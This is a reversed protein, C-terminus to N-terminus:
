KNSGEKAAKEAAKRETVRAGRLATALDYDGESCAYEYMQSDSRTVTMEGSYPRVWMGPDELTFEYIMTDKDVLRFREILHVNQAGPFPNEETFNTTDVVLTEGEWHGVSDGQLQRVNKPLHPRGDTPIIRDRAMEYQISVYGAGQVIRFDSNYEAPRMPPGTGSKVLCRISMLRNEPGDFEHGVAAEARAVMRQHAEPTLPPITGDPGTLISTRRSWILPAQHRDTGYNSMDYHLVSEQDPNEGNGGHELSRVISELTPASTNVTGNKEKHGEIKFDESHYDPNNFIAKDRDIKAKLEAETYFEPLGKPREFPMLTNNNWIGQLDPNGDSTRPTVYVKSADATKVVATSKAAAKAPASVAQGVAPSSALLAALGVVAVAAALSLYQNSM